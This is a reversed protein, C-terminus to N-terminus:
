PLCIEEIHVIRSGSVQFATVYYEGMRLKRTGNCEGYMVLETGIMEPISYIANSLAASNASSRCFIPLNPVNCLKQRIHLSVARIKVMRMARHAAVSNASGNEGTERRIDKGCSGPNSPCGM